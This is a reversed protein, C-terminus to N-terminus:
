ISICGYKGAAKAAEATALASAVRLDQAWDIAEATSPAELLLTRGNALRLQVIGPTACLSLCIRTSRTLPLDVDDDPAAACVRM